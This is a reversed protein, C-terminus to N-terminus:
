SVDIIDIKQHCLPCNSADPPIMKKCRPCSILNKMKGETNQGLNRKLFIVYILAFPGLLTGKIWWRLFSHGKSEAIIAVILGILTNIVFIRM